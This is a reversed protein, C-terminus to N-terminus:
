KWFQWWKKAERLSRDVFRRVEEEIMLRGHGGVVSEGPSLAGAARLQDEVSRGAAEVADGSLRSRSSGRKVLEDQALQRVRELSNVSLERYDYDNDRALPSGIRVRHTSRM